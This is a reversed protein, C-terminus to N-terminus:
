RDPRLAYWTAGCAGTDHNYQVILAWRNTQNVPRYGAYRLPIVRNFYGGPTLRRVWVALSDTSYIRGELYCYGSGNTVETDVVHGMAEPVYLACQVGSAMTMQSGLRERVYTYVKVTRLDAAQVLPVLILFLLFVALILLRSRKRMM